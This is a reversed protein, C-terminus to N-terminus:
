RIRRPLHRSQRAGNEIAYGATSIRSAHEEEHVVQPIAPLGQECDSQQEAAGHDHEEHDVKAM